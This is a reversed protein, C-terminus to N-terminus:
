VHRMEKSPQNEPLISPNEIKELLTKMEERLEMITSWAMRCRDSKHWVCTSPCKHTTVDFLTEACDRWGKLLEVLEDDM